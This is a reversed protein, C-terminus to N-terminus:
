WRAQSGDAIRQTLDELLQRNDREFARRLRDAEVLYDGESMQQEATALRAGAQEQLQEFDSAYRLRLRDTWFPFVPTGDPTEALLADRGAPTDGRLDLLETHLADLWDASLHERLVGARLGEVREDPAPALRLPIRPDSALHQSVLSRLTELQLDNATPFRAYLADIIARYRISSTAIGLLYETQTRPDPFTEPLALEAMLEFRFLEDAPRQLAAERALPNSDLWQLLFWFRRRATAPAAYNLATEALSRLNRRYQVPLSHSLREWSALTQEDAGHLLTSYDEDSVLLDIGTEAYHAEIRGMAEPNLPNHELSLARQAAPSLPLPQPLETIMNSSLDVSQVDELAALGDPFQRIDSDSLSLENLEHLTGVDPASGLPNGSLNLMELNPYGQLAAQSEPGWVIRNDSLDFVTLQEGLGAPLHELQLANGWLCRVEPFNRVLSPPVARFPNNNLILERVHAFGDGLDPFSLFDEEALGMGTLNLVSPHPLMRRWCQLVLDQVRLRAPHNGVWRGLALRLFELKQELERLAVQPPRGADQWERIEAQARAENVAPYLRRYRDILASGSPAAPPYTFPRDSGGFLRGGDRWGNHTGSWLQSLTREPHRHAREAIRGKLTQPDDALEPMAEALAEFLDQRPPQMGLQTVARYGGPVKVILRQDTALRDGVTELSPGDPSGARLELSCGGPWNKEAPLSTLALRDSGATSRDPRYLGECLRELPSEALADGRLRQLTSLLRAPAPQRKLYIDLLDDRDVGSVRSAVELEEDSYQEVSHGIRRLLTRRPWLHPSEHNGLWAGQGNHEFTPRFAEASDPHPIEWRQGDAHLRQPYHKGEFPLYHQGDAVWQGADNRVSEGPPTSRLPALDGNWLRPTQDPRLVEIFSRGFKGAYHLAGATVAATAVELGVAKVHGLAADIDGCKWAKVGEYVEDLLQVVFVAAMLQGAAPIFFAAVGLLDLGLSEWYHIRAQRAAEDTDASPVAMLRAENHLRRVHRDQLYGFLPGQLAFDQWHLEAGAVAQWRLDRDQARTAGTLNRQLVSAFHLHKDQQIFGLFQQRFAPECLRQLLDRQCAGLTAYRTLARDELGPLYLIVAESTPTPRILLADLLDVDFVRLNSCQVATPTDDLLQLLQECDDRLNYCLRSTLLDLRFHDKRAAIGLTRTQLPSFVTELHEQYRQGLNLDHCERAFQAPTISVKEYQYRPFGNYWSIQFDGHIIVSEPQWALDAPFNQLAAELLPEVRHNLETQLSTWNWDRTFRVLKMERLAGNLGFREQLRQRLLPEAFAEPTKLAKLATALATSSAHVQAQAAEFEERLAPIANLLWPQGASDRLYRLHRAHQPTLRSVRDPLREKIFQVHPEEPSSPTIVSPSM